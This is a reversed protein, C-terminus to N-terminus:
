SSAADADGDEATTPLAGAGPTAEPNVLAADAHPGAAPLDLGREPRSRGAESGRIPDPRPQKGQGSSRMRSPADHNGDGANSM